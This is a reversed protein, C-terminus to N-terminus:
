EPISNFYKDNIIPWTLWWALLVNRFYTSMCNHKFGTNVLFSTTKCPLDKYALLKTYLSFSFTDYM